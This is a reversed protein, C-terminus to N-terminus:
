STASFAAGPEPTRNEATTSGHFHVPQRCHMSTQPGPASVEASWSSTSSPMSSVRNSRSVFSGSEGARSEASAVAGPPSMLRIM